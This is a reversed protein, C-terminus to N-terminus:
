AAVGCDPCDRGDGRAEPGSSLAGPISPRPAGSPPPALSRKGARQACHAPPGRREAAEDNGPHPRRGNRRASQGRDRRPRPPSPGQRLSRPDRLRHENGARPRPGHPRWAGAPLDRHGPRNPGRLRRSANRRAVKEVERERQDIETLLSQVYPHLAVHVPCYPKGSRTAKACGQAECHRPIPRGDNGWRLMSRVNM